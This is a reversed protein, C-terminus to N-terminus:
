PLAKKKQWRKTNRLLNQSVEVSHRDFEPDYEEKWVEDGLHIPSVIIINKLSIFKLLEDVCLGLGKAIKYPNANYCSKCDNTGLMIVAADPYNSELIEPLSEM